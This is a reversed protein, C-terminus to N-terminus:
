PTPTEVPEIVTAPITAYIPLATATPLERWSPPEAGTPAPAPLTTAVPSPPEGPVDAGPFVLWCFGPGALALGLLTGLLWRRM